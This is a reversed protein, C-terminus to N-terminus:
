GKPHQNRKFKRLSSLYEEVVERDDFYIKEDGLIQYTEHGKGAIILVDGHSLVDIARNIAEKRQPIVTYTEKSKQDNKNEVGALIDDIISQPDETRPNDSTIFTHDSMQTAIKGMLPRKAKDRDGGCGFLTIIRNVSQTKAAKIINELADPTHAYDVIITYECGAGLVEARGRIGQCTLLADTISSEEFGLLLTACICALSNYVTFLGPINVRIRSNKSASVATFEVKDPYLKIDEGTIDAKLNGVAYTTVEGATSKIMLESSKDDINIVGQRCNSFLKAKAAAYEDMTNHFDLHEPTINTFIGIEYPIGYVRSLSLAHSSVEMVVYECGEMAMKALISQLEYSDPTTLATAIEREGIINGITGILGVKAGTCKEIIHKILYTCSTKGNTGTVGIMKMKECPYGFWAASILALAIRSDHVIIYPIDTQPATECIILAVGKKVVDDIFDHGDNKFGKVAVFLEGQIAVASNYCVGTIEINENFDDSKDIIDLNEILKSILM